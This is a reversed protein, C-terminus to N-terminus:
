LLQPRMALRCGPRKKDNEKERVTGTETVKKRCKRAKRRAKERKDKEHGKTGKGNGGSSKKMAEGFEKM